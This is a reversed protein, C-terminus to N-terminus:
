DEMLFQKGEFRLRLGWELLRLVLACSCSNLVYRGRMWECIGPRSVSHFQLATGQFTRNTGGSVVAELRVDILVDPRGVGPVVAVVVWASGVSWFMSGVRMAM